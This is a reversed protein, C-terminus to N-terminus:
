ASEVLVIAQAAIGEKRGIAGLGDTTTAKVSIRTTDIALVSALRRRIEAVHPSMRPEEAMITSDINVINCGAGAMLKSVQKLLDTSDANKLDARSSPFHQGIDGLAAAGLLADMIAHTLVDGDSHGALGRAGKIVVGGLILPRENDFPHVDYGQGIRIM